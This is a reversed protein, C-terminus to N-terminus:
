SIEDWLRDKFLRRGAVEDSVEFAPAVRRGILEGVVTWDAVEPLKPRVEQLLSRCATMFPRQPLLIRGALNMAQFEYADRLDSDLKQQFQLYDELSVINAEKYLDEHLLLHGVEHALTFRYRTLRNMMQFQDVYIAKREYGLFGDIEWNKRLDPFPVIDLGFDFDAIEEIPM